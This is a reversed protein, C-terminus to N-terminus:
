PPPRPRDPPKTLGAGFPRAAGLRHPAHASRESEARGFEATQAVEKLVGAADEGALPQAIGPPAVVAVDLRAGDVDVDTAEPLRDVVAALGIDYSRHTRGTIRQVAFAM